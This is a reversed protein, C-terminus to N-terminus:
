VPLAKNESYVCVRCGGVDAAKTVVALVFNETFDNAFRGGGRRQKVFGRGGGERGGRSSGLPPGVEGSVRGIKMGCVERQFAGQGPRENVKSTRM